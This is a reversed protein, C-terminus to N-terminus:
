FGPASPVASIGSDTNLVAPDFARKIGNVKCIIGTQTDNKEYEFYEDMFEFFRTEYGTLADKDLYREPAGSDGRFYRFSTSDYHPCYIVDPTKSPDLALYLPEYKLFLREVSYTTFVGVPMGLEIYMYELRAAVAVTSGHYKEKILGIDRSISSIARKVYTLTRIGKFVGAEIPDTVSNDITTHGVATEIPKYYGGYFAGAAFLLCFLCILTRRVARPAIFRLLREPVLPKKAASNKENESGNETGNFADRRIQFGFRESGCVTLVTGPLLPLVICSGLAFSVESFYDSALSFLAGCILFFLSRPDKRGSILLCLVMFLEAPFSMGCLYMWNWSLPSMSRFQVFLAFAESVFFCSAGVVFLASLVASDYKGESGTKKNRIRIFAAIAICAATIVLAPTFFLGFANDLKDAFTNRSDLALTFFGTLNKTLEALGVTRELWFIIFGASVAIGATVAGWAGPSLIFPLEGHHKKRKRFPIALFVVLTWLVYVVATPPMMLVAASLFIGAFFRPVAKARKPEASALMAFLMLSHLFVSYYSLTLLGLPVLGCFLLCGLLGPIGGRRFYVCMVVYLAATLSIYVFRMFLIIGDTSGSATVYAKYFPYVFLGFLQSPSWEDIFPRDGLGFRQALTIYYAEDSRGVGYMASFSLWAFLVAGVAIAAAAYTRKAKSSAKITGDM